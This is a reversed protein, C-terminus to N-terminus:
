WAPGVGAGRRLVIAATGGLLLVLVAVGWGSLSPVDLANVVGEIAGADCADGEPRTFGRQDTDECYTALAADLAPSASVLGHTRTPGGYRGLPLLGLDAAAHDTSLISFKFCHDVVDPGGLNGGRTFVSRGRCKGKILSNQAYIFGNPFDNFISDGSPAENDAMTSHSILVDGSGRIFLGGGQFRARNGSLTSNVITVNNERFFGSQFVGGGATESVNGSITTRLFTMSSAEGVIGGGEYQCYCDAITSDVFTVDSEIMRVCGGRLSVGSDRVQRGGTIEVNSFTVRSFAIEAVRDATTMRIVTPGAPDGVIQLHDDIDLDGLLADNEDDVQTLTLMYVGAPLEIRDTGPSANAAIVAERLACDEPICPGNDDDTRTVVFTAAAAGTPSGALALLVLFCLGLICAPKPLARM